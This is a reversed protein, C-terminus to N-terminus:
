LTCARSEGVGTTWVTLTQASSAQYVRWTYKEDRYFPYSPSGWITNEYYAENYQPNYITFALSSYEPRIYRGGSYNNWGLWGKKQGSIYVLWCNTGGQVTINKQYCRMQRDDYNTKFCVDGIPTSSSKLKPMASNWAKITEIKNFNVVEGGIKAQGYVNVGFAQIMDNVKFGIAQDEEDEAFLFYDNYVTRWAYYDEMNDLNNYEDSAVEYLSWLSTFKQVEGSKLLDNQPMTALTLCSSYFSNLDSYSPIGDIILVENVKSPNENLNDSLDNEKSCAVFVMLLISPMLILVKKM